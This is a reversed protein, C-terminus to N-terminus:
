GQHIRCSHNFLNEILDFLQYTISNDATGQIVVNGIFENILDEPINAKWEKAALDYAEWDIAWGQTKYDNYEPKNSYAAKFYYPKEWELINSAWEKVNTQDIVTVTLINDITYSTDHVKTYTSLYEGIIEEIFEKTKDTTGVFLETSSNTIVDVISHPHILMM